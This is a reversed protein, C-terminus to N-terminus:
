RAAGNLEGQLARVTAALGAAFSVAPTYALTARLRSVDAVSERIDGPRAPAFQAVVPRGLVCGLEKLLANLTINTGTGVNLTAGAAAPATAALLNVAVVNDIHIFDRSQEGDGYITPRRGSLAARIFRPIVAAYEADPDQWPGFVNFYRLVVTELGYIRHWIRAYGESAVKQVGYPSLPLAPLTESKPSAPQDGYVAASSAFIVRRAGSARAAELVHLTGTANTAHAGEPDALSAQTSAVAAHHLVVEVGRCARRVTERDRIDGAIWEVADRVDAIRAGSASLPGAAGNELVRVREGRRVLARVLHSGIFGGGGTVLYV